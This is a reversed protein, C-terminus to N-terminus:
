AEQRSTGRRRRRVVRVAWLVFGSLVSLLGLASLATLWPSNFDDRGSYDMTHLMWFFDFRRWQDNRRASITGRRRDVYVHTGQGDDLRVRFAPLPRERYETPPDSDIPDVGLVPPDGERDDVALRAAEEATILPRRAGTTADVLAVEEGARVEYVGQGLLGRLVIERAPASLGAAKAAQAPTVLPADLPLAAPEADRRGVQGRVSDIDHTAFILGGVCWALVQLGVIATLVRHIRYHTRRKM